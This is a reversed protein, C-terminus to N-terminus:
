HLCAAPYNPMTMNLRPPACDYSALCYYNGSMGLQECRPHTLTDGGLLNSMTPCTFQASGQGCKCKGPIMMAQNAGDCTIGATGCDSDMFCPYYLPLCMFGRPCGPDIGFPNCTVSCFAKSGDMTIPSCWEQERFPMMSMAAPDTSLGGTWNSTGSNCQASGMMPDCTHCFTAAPMDFCDGAQAMVGSTATTTLCSTPNEYPSGSEGCCFQGIGCSLVRSVCGPNCCVGLETDNTKVPLARCEAKTYSMMPQM